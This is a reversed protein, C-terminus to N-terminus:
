CGYPISINPVTSFDLLDYRVYIVGSVPIQADFFAGHSVDLNAYYRVVLDPDAHVWLEGTGDLAGGERLRLPPFSMIDPTVGFRYAEIANIVAHVNDYPAQTVGGLLSGADLDAVGQATDEVNVLCRGQGDVLYYDEGLRVGEFQRPESAFADGGADLIVRRAPAIGDWWVEARIHGTTQALTADVVGEFRLELTYHYGELDSLDQDITALTMQEFGEPPANETLVIATALSDVDMPTPPPTEGLRTCATLSLATGLLVWGVLRRITILPSRERGSENL